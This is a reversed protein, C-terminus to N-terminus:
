HQSRAWPLTDLTTKAFPHLENNFYATRYYLVVQELPFDYLTYVWHKLDRTCRKGQCQLANNRGEKGCGGKKIVGSAIRSTRAVNHAQLPHWLECMMSWQILELEQVIMGHGRIQPTYYICCYGKVWCCKKCLTRDLLSLCDNTMKLRAHSLWGEQQITHQSKCQSSQQCQTRVHFIFRAITQMIAFVGVQSFNGMDIQNIFLATM